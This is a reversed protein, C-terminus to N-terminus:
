RGFSGNRRLLVLSGVVLLPCTFPEPAEAICIDDLRLRAGTEGDFRLKLVQDTEGLLAPSTVGIVDTDWVTPSDTRITELLTDGLCIELTGAEMFSFDASEYLTLIVSQDNAQWNGFLFGIQSVASSNATFNQGLPAQSNTYQWGSYPGSVIAAASMSALFLPPALAASSRVGLM